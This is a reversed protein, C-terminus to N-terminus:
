DCPSQEVGCQVVSEDPAGLTGVGRDITVNSFQGNHSRQRATLDVLLNLATEGGCVTDPTGEEVLVTFNRSEGARFDMLGDLGPLGHFYARASVRGSGGESDIEVHGQFFVHQLSLKWGHEARIVMRVNCVRHVRPTYDDAEVFLDPFVIDIAPNDGLTNVIPEVDGCSGQYETGLIEFHAEESAFASPAVLASALVLASITKM